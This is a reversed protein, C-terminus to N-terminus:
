RDFSIMDLRLGLITVGGEPSFLFPFQSPYESEGDIKLLPSLFATEPFRQKRNQNNVLLWLKIM